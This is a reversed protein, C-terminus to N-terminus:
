ATLGAADSSGANRRTPAPPDSPPRQRLFRAATDTITRLIPESILGVSFAMLVMVPVKTLSLGILMYYTAIALFPASTLFMYQNLLGTRWRIPKIGTTAQGQGTPQTPGPDGTPAAGYMIWADVDFVFIADM